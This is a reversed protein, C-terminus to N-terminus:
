KGICFKSFIDKLMDEPTYAGLLVGLENLAQRIDVAIIEPYLRKKLNDLVRNLYIDLKILLEKQRINFVIGQEYFQFKKLEKKIIQELRKIETERSVSINIISEGKNYSKLQNINIRQKLDSKNIIIIKKNSFIKLRQFLSINEKTLVKSGDVMMLIIQSHRMCEETKKISQEEIHNIPKKFGATDVLKIPLKNIEIYEEVLDRTTGPIHSIISKDRKILLNFLSSKGVNTQGIISITIGKQYMQSLEYSSILKKIKQKIICIEKYVNKPKTINLNEEPHDILVELNLLINKLRKYIEKIDNSLEGSLNQLAKELSLLNTANILDNVAEARLLDMKKNLVARYTYEGPYSLRAGQQILSNLIANLILMNGHCNIEVLDEGTYSYPAKQFHIIVQDIIRKSFKIYGLYRGPKQILNVKKLASRVFISNIITLAKEGSIRIIGIAGKGIPTSIAAITDNLNYETANM